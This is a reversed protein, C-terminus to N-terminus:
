KPRLVIIRKFMFTNMKQLCKALKFIQILFKSSEGMNLANQRLISPYEQEINVWGSGCSLKLKSFLVCLFYIRKKSTQSSVVSIVKVRLWGTM